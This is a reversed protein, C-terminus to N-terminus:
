KNGLLKNKLKTIKKDFTEVSNPYDHVRKIVIGSYVSALLPIGWMVTVVIGALNSNMEGLFVELLMVESFLIAISVLFVLGFLSGFGYLLVARDSKALNNIQAKQAEADEIRRKMSKISRNSWYRVIGLIVLTGIASGGISVVWSNNLWEMLQEM